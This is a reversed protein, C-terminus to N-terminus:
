NLSIERVSFSWHTRDKEPIILDMTLTKISKKHNNNKMVIKAKSM